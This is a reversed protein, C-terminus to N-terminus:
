IKIKGGIVLGILMFIVFVFFDVRGALLNAVGPGPCVGSIGWGIGFLVSGIVLPRDLVTKVPLDFDDAFIPTKRKWAFRYLVFTPLIAGLMVFALTPDWQGFIDLFSIVKQPNTMGSVFLGVSFLFGSILLLVNRMM